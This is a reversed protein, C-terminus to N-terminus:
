LYRGRVEPCVEQIQAAWKLAVENSLRGFSDGNGGPYWFYGEPRGSEPEYITFNGARYPMREWREKELLATTLREDDDKVDLAEQLVDFQHKIVEEDPAVYVYRVGEEHMNYKVVDLFPSDEDFDSDFAKGVVWITQVKMDRELESLEEQTWFAGAEDAEMMKTRTAKALRASIVREMHQLYYRSVILATLVSVTLGISVTLAAILWRSRPPDLLLGVALVACATLPAVLLNLARQRIGDEDVRM